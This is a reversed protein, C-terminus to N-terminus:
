EIPIFIQVAFLKFDMQFIDKAEVTDKPEFVAIKRAVIRVTMNIRQRTETIRLCDSIHLAGILRVFM